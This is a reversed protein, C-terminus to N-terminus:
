SLAFIWNSDWNGPNKKQNYPQLLLRFYAVTEHPIILINEKRAFAELEELAGAKVPKQRTRLTLSRMKLDSAPM